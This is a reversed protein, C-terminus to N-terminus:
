ELARAARNVGTRILSGIGNGFEYSGTIVVSNITTTAAVLRATAAHTGLHPAPGRLAYQGASYGGYTRTIAGGTLVSAVTRDLNQVPGAILSTASYNETIQEFAGQTTRGGTAGIIVGLAGGNQYDESVGNAIANAGFVVENVVSSGFNRVSNLFGGESTASLTRGNGPFTTQPGNMAAANLRGLGLPDTFNTPSNGVYAYPNIGDAFGAPDRQTFRGM